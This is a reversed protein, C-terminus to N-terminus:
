PAKTAGASPKPTATSEAKPKAAAEEDRADAIKWDDGVLKLVFITAKTWGPFRTSKKWVVKVEATSTGQASVVPENWEPTPSGSEVRSASDEALARAVDQNLMLKEYAAVDTSNQSRLKLLRDVTGDPSSTPSSCGVVLLALGAAAALILLRKNIM